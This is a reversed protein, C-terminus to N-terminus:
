CPRCPAATASRLLTTNLVEAQVGAVAFLKALLFYLSSHPVLSSQATFGQWDLWAVVSKSAGDGKIQWMLRVGSRSRSHIQANIMNRPCM